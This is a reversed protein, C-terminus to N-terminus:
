DEIIDDAFVRLKASEFMGMLEYPSTNEGWGLIPMGGNEVIVIVRSVEGWKGADLDDAFRRAMAAVDMLNGVPLEAVNEGVLRLTV